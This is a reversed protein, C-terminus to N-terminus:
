MIIGDYEFMLHHMELEMVISASLEIYQQEVIILLQEDSFLKGMM